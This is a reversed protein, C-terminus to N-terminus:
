ACLRRRPNSNTSGYIHRYEYVQANPTVHRAVNSTYQRLVPQLANNIVLTVLTVLHPSANNRISSRAHSEYKKKGKGRPKHFRSNALYVYKSAQLNPQHTAKRRCAVTSNSAPLYSSHWLNTPTKSSMFNKGGKRDMMCPRKDANSRCLRIESTSRARPSGVPEGQRWVGAVTSCM